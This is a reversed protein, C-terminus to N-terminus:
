DLLSILPERFNRMANQEENKTKVNLVSFVNFCTSVHSSRIQTPTDIIPSSTTEARQQQRGVLNRRHNCIVEQTM